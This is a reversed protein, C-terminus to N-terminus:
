KQKQKLDWNQINVSLISNLIEFMVAKTEKKTLM